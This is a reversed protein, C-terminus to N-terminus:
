KTGGQINLYFHIETISNVPSRQNKSNFTSATINQTSQPHLIAHTVRFIRMGDRPRTLLPIRPASPFRTSSPLTWPGTWIRSIRAWNKFFFYSDVLFRVLSISDLALFIVVMIQIESAKLFLTRAFSEGSNTNDQNSVDSFNWTKKLQARTKLPSM